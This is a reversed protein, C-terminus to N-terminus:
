IYGFLLLVFWGHFILPPQNFDDKALRDAVVNEEQLIHPLFFWGAHPSARSEELCRSLRWQIRYKNSGISSFFFCGWSARLMLMNIKETSSMAETPGSCTQIITGGHDRILGGISARKSEQLLNIDFKLKILGLLPPPWFSSHRVLSSRWKFCEM